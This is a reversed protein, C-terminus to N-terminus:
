HLELLQNIKEEVSDTSLCFCDGELDAFVPIGGYLLPAVASISMSYGCVIVEDGPEIGIAGMACYLGSTNSNVSVAHKVGFRQAWASELAHITPGGYFDAHWAGLYKSMIGSEMVKAVALAEEKGVPRHAPFLKKRVKPGGNIALDTM